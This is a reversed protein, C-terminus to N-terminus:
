EVVISTRLDNEFDELTYTRGSEFRLTVIVSSGPRIAKVGGPFVAPAEGEYGSNFWRGLDKEGKGPEFSIFALEHLKTGDNALEVTYTGAEIEPVEFGDDTVAIRLDPEPLDADSTGTVGFVSVMGQAVHPEGEPTPLFCMFAYTGEDLERTMSTEIGSSIAPIGSLDEAWPPFGGKEIAKMVDELGRDGEIGVLGMEHPESGKNAFEFTVVGGTVDDPMGFAYETLGVEVVNQVLTQEQGGGDPAAGDGDSGCAALLVLSGVAFVRLKM